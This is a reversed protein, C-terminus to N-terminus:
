NAFATELLKALRIGAKVLQEATANKAAAVYNEDLVHIGTADKVPLKAYAINRAVAFTELTWDRPTGRQWHRQEIQGTQAILKKAISDPKRGLKSVAANDWYHHLTGRKFGKARVHIENGGADGNDGVHLPQHLDGVLHILFQLALRREIASTRPSALEAAFQEVKVTVCAKAPGNSAMEHTKLPLSGFCAKAFDSKALNLNIYHWRRTQEYRTKHSARDSDRYADAWTSESVFDTATLGSDDSRLLADIKERATPSLYQWAISAIVQHGKDGWAYVFNSCLLLLLAAIILRM